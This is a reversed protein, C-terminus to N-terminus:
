KKYTGLVIRLRAKPKYSEQWIKLATMQQDRIRLKRLLTSTVVPTKSAELM